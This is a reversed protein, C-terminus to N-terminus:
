GRKNWVWEGSVMTRVPKITYIEEPPLLFPDRDLVILDASYGPSLRGITKEQCSAYAPGITYHTLAEALTLRQDPYWGNLGPEGDQRRRTVAAHLGFFPNPSEVPADSGFALATGSSALSRFAYAGVSRNGWHNDAMRMDSTSHLPQVSAIIGLAALRNLDQPHLLQVHEIRHRLPALGARKEIQRIQAYANLVTRNARDGIAHIALSLGHEIAQRGIEVIDVEAMLLQGCDSNEGEYPELMAATRPGLAGDSFCKVSGMRLYDNGFGTRLGLAVAEDLRDRPIGKVVRLRLQDRGHLTQLASFCRPGDFDHIGTVGYQWLLSQAKLIKQSVEEVTPEPIIREVLAMASELLIGTPQGNADRQIIGGQPDPTNANIGALQLAASNVWAAHWSKATLFVPLESSVQDLDTARGFGEPWLNQNWGHGRLWKGYPTVRAKDAVRRVTEQLTETECNIFELTTAYYELHIHADTLGPWVTKGELNEGSSASKAIAQIEADNGIAVIRGDQIAVASAFPTNSNLTRIRGNFLFRL